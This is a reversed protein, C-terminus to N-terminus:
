LARWIIIRGECVYQGDWVAHFMKDKKLVIITSAYIGVLTMGKTKNTM